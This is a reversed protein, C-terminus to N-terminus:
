LEDNSAILIPFRIYRSIPRRDHIPGHHRSDFGGDSSRTSVIDVRDALRAYQSLIQFMNVSLKPPYSSVKFLLNSVM